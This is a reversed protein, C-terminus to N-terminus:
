KFNAKQGQLSEKRSIQAYISQIKITKALLDKYLYECMCDEKGLLISKEFTIEPSLSFLSVKWKGIM